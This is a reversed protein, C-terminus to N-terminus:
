KVLIPSSSSEIWKVNVAEALKQLRDLPGDGPADPFPGRPPVARPRDDAM